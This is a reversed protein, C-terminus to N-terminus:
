LLRIVRINLDDDSDFGIRVNPRDAAETVEWERTEIMNDTEVDLHYQGEESVIELAVIKSDPTVTSNYQFLPEDHDNTELTVSLFHTNESDNTIRLSGGATLPNQETDRDDNEQGISSDTDSGNNGHDAGTAAGLCGTVATSCGIGIGALVTRRHM